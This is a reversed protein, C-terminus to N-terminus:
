IDTSTGKVKDYFLNQYLHKRQLNQSIERQVAAKTYVSTRNVKRGRSKANKFVIDYM